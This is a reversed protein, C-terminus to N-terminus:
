PEYGIVSSGQRRKLFRGAAWALLGIVIGSLVGILPGTLAMMLRAMDPSPMSKMMDAEIPHKALYQRYFLLHLTTVWLSNILGLFVGHAFHRGNCNRAILYACMVFIVAWFAPEINPPIVGITAVGMGLGFMSLKLILKWDM